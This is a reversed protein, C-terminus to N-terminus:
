LYKKHKYKDDKKQRLYLIPNQQTSLTINMKVHLNLINHKHSRLFKRCKKLFCKHQIPPHQLNTVKSIKTTVHEFMSYQKSHFSM